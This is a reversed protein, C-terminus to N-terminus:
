EDVHERQIDAVARRLEFAVNRGDSGGNRDFADARELLKALLRREAERAVATVAQLDRRELSGDSGWSGLFVTRAEEATMTLSRMVDM